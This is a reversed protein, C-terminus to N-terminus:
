VFNNRQQDRDGPAAGADQHATHPALPFPASDRQWGLLCLQFAMDDDGTKAPHPLRNGTNEIFLVCEYLKTYHISYSTIVSNKENFQLRVNALPACHVKLRRVSEPESGQDVVLVRVDVGKQACASDIARLTDDSRNWSLIIIDVSALVCEWGTLQRPLM